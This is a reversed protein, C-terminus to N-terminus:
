YEKTRMLLSDVAFDLINILYLNKRGIAHFWQKLLKKDKLSLGTVFFRKRSFSNSSCGPVCCFKRNALYHRVGSAM